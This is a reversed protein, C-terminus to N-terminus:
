EFGGGGRFPRDDLIKQERKDADLQEQQRARLILDDMSKLKESASIWKQTQAQVAMERQRVVQMQHQIAQQLRDVFAQYLALQSAQRVLQRQSSVSNFYEKLYGELETCQRRAQQLQQQLDALKRAELREQQQKLDRVPRLRLSKKM